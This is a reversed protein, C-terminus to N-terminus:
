KLKELEPIFRYIFINSTFCFILIKVGASSIEICVCDRYSICSLLRKVIVVLLIEWSLM